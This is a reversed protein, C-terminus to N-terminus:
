RGAASPHDATQTAQGMAGPRLREYYDAIIPQHPPDLLTQFEDWLQTIEPMSQLQQMGSRHSAEDPYWHIELWEAPDVRSRLHVVHYHIHEAFMTHAREQLELCREANSPDIRYRYIKVFTKNELM